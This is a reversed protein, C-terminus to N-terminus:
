DAADVAAGDDKGLRNERGRNLRFESLFKDRVVEVRRRVVEPEIGLTEMLRAGLQLSSETTEPTVDTAGMALLHLGQTRDKSRCLIPMRPWERSAASVISSAAYPDDVTVLLSRANDGGARRLLDIRSADGFVIPINEQRLAMVNNPDRDIALYPIEETELLGAVQRGVRGFGVIIVHDVWKEPRANGNREEARREIRRAFTEGLGALLPTLAISVSAVTLGLQAMNPHLANEAAALSLIVLAFEGAQALLLGAEVARAWSLGFLRSLGTIVATKLLILGLLAGLLFGARHWVEAPDIAMGISAFFLGLLLGKFPELDVEIQRSYESEALLVGGLFAGLAASLGVASTAAAAGLAFVLAAAVFADPARSAGVIRLLPRGVFRGIIVIALVMAGGGILIEAARLLVSKGEGHMAIFGTMLLLPAVALDQMLLIGFARQGLPTSARRKELLLQMVMATSSLALAAGLILGDSQSAGLSVAIGAIAPICVLLQLGGLGFVLRRMNRLREISLELGITFMLLTIGIEAFLRVQEADVFVIHRLWVEDRALKGLVHPGVILGFVLYGVITSLKLHRCLTPLISAAALFVLVQGLYPMLGPADEM